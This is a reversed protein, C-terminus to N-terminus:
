EFGLEFDNIFYDPGTNKSNVLLDNFDFLHRRNNKPKAVFGDFNAVFFRCFLDL